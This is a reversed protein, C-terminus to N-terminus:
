KLFSSKSFIYKVSELDLYQIAATEFLKAILDLRSKETKHIMRQISIFTVSLSSRLFLDKYIIAYVISIILDLFFFNVDIAGRGFNRRFLFSLSFFPFYLIDGVIYWNKFRNLHVHDGGAPHFISTRGLMGRVRDTQESFADIEGNISRDPPRPYSATTTRTEVQEDDLVPHVVRTTDGRQGGREIM